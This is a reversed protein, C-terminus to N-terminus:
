TLDRLEGRFAGTVDADIALSFPTDATLLHLVEDIPRAEVFTLTLHRPADLAAQASAADMQTVPLPPLATGAPTQPRPPPPPQVPTQRAASPGALRVVPMDQVSALLMAAAIAPRLM